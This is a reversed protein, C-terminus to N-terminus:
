AAATLKAASPFLFFFTGHCLRLAKSRAVAVVPLCCGYVFDLLILMMYIHRCFFCAGNLSDKQYSSISFLHRRYLLM